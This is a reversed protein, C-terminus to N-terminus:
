CKGNKEERQFYKQFKVQPGLVFLSKFAGKTKPGRPQLGYTFRGGVRKLHENYSLRLFKISCEIM